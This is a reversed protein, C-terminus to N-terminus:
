NGEDKVELSINIIEKTNKDIIYKESIRYPVVWIIEEDDYIIPVLDRKYRDIKEDIFFNKLKKYKNMGFPMFKDGDRRNRIKLNGKIKNADISIMNDDARYLNSKAVYINGFHTKNKGLNLIQEEIEVKGIERALYIYDYSLILNLDGPLNIKSNVAKQILLVVDSINKSSIGELTNIENKLFERVIESLIYEDLDKLNKIYLKNDKYNKLFLDRTIKNVFKFNSKSIQSLRILSDTFNENFNDEIYPIVNLRLKNRSYIDEFNTEDQVFNINNEEIYEEIEDRKINLMPRYLDRDIFDMASLGEIGTGRIIRFLVTEAQDNANHALFIKSNKSALSRFFNYRLFRGAEESSIKHEIAYEDMNVHLVECKLNLEKARKIVFDEDRKATDRVGHNVHAVIIELNYEEKLENLNELLFISDAGGSVAAIIRDKYNLMNFKEINEKFKKNIAM